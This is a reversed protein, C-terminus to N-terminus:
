LVDHFIIGLTFREGNHVESVGHRFVTRYFGNAGRVPRYKNPIIAIDGIRPLLAIPRSQSRPRQEVLVFEGGAYDQGPENLFATIQFPFAVPGYLDQHLCNYDGAGYRLILATPRRQDSELCFGLFQQQTQPFRADIGLAEHWRNAIPALEIYATERFAAIPEPLPYSFYRYEGRGFNHREMIVQSRYLSEDDYLQRISACEQANLVGPVHAYGRDFLQREIQLWPLASLRAAIPHELIM